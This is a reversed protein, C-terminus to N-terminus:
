ERFLLKSKKHEHIGSREMEFECLTTESVVAEGQQAVSKYEENAQGSEFWYGKAYLAVARVMSSCAMM